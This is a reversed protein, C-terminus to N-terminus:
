FQGKGLDVNPALSKIQFRQSFNVRLVLSAPSGENQVTELALWTLM